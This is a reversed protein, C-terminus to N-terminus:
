KKALAKRMEDELNTTKGGAEEKKPPRGPGKKAPAAESVPKKGPPPMKKAAAAKKKQEDLYAIRKGCRDALGCESTCQESDPDRQRAAGFCEVYVKFGDKDVVEENAKDEIQEDSLKEYDINGQEDLPPWNEEAPSEEEAPTEEEEAAEEEAAEEEAVEEEAVEEEEEEAAEEEVAAEEEKEEKEGAPLQKAEQNAALSYVDEKTGGALIMQQQEDSFFPMIEELNWMGVLDADKIHSAKSPAIVPRVRYKTDTKTTGEREIIVDHGKNLDCLDINDAYFDLLDKMINTGFSFVQIKPKGVKPLHQDPCGDAKVREIDKKTWIPDNLDQINVYLQMKARLNKSLEVSAPDASSRLEKAYECIRCLIPESPDMGLIYAADPTKSACSVIFKNNDDPEEMAVVGYHVWIERWWQGENPGKDTWAPLIRIKNTGVKAKWWEPRLGFKAQAAIKANIDDRMKKAKEMNTKIAM